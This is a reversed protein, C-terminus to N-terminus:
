SMRQQLSEIERDVLKRKTLIIQLKDRNNQQALTKAEVSYVSQLRKMADVYAQLASGGKKLRESLEEAQKELQIGKQRLSDLEAPKLKTQYKAIQQDLQQKEFRLVSICSTSTSSSSSGTSAAQTTHTTRPKAEVQVPPAPRRELQDVILWKEKVEEVQKNVFPDRVRIKVELKGGVAKRGEMLDYSDHYVCKDELAQLKINATGLLKDGKLFGRKYYVDFKFFKNSKLLRLFSRSKRNVEVKFSQNYEPCNTGKIVATDGTQPTDPFPFEYKVYTQLDTPAYGSPLNYNLGRVITLELDNDGLETCCQVLSFQRTEYHFRPVPDGHEYANKLADLDKRCSQCMKDFKTASSVDGLKTFHDSNSECIKIQNVLEDQLRKYIENRDGTEAQDAGACDSPNVFEFGSDDGTGPPPPVQALNVPLGSKSAEIMQDFGKAMRLYKKALELDGSSKAHLAAQKFEAQRQELFAGQQEARSHVSTQKQLTQKPLTKPAGAANPANPLNASHPTTKAVPAGSAPGGPVASPRQGSSGVPIPPFGPPTPLEDFDVPKGAQYLKIADVYQKVIRAQRKMKSANNEEKAMQEAEKYKALRQNLAELVSGATEPANYLKKKDEASTEPLPEENEPSAGGQVKDRIVGGSTPQGPKMKQISPPPPMKSLDVPQGAQLAEIVLDFQKATRICDKATAEDGSRKAKLAAAKYEDRRGTLMKLKDADESNLQPKNSATPTLPSVAPGSIRAPALPAANGPTPHSPISSRVTPVPPSPQKHNPELGRVAAGPYLVTATAPSPAAPAMRMPQAVSPAPPQHTQSALPPSIVTSSSPGAPPAKNALVPPIDDESVPKGAKAQKMLDELTKIGREIRKAKSTDGSGRAVECGTRYNELREQLTTVMSVAPENSSVKKPPEYSSSDSTLEDLEALLDPDETDSVDEDSAIDRMSMAIMKDLDANAKGKGKAPPPARGGGGGRRGGSPTDDDDDQLARLEAELDDDNDLDGYVLGGIDDTALGMQAMLAKGGGERKPAPEKKRGFM